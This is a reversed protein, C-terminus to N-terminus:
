GEMAKLYQRALKLDNLDDVEMCFRDSLYVPQLVLEDLLNNLADEAYVNLRDQDQFKKMENLWVNFTEQQLKYIPMLFSCHENFINVSIKRVRGGRIEGKFDKAPLEVRDNVLVADAQTSHLLKSLVGNEFVMDGHMLILDDKVEHECLLLSYIYNTKRYAPNHVFSFKVGSFKKELYTEIQGAFPGTTIIIKTLGMEQLALVQRSLITENEKLEVLCKPKDATFEKMRSGTGSNLIIVQM